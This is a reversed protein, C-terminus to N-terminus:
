AASSNDSAQGIPLHEHRRVPLGSQQLCHVLHDQRALERPSPDVDFIIPQPELRCKPDVDKYFASKQDFNFQVSQMSRMRFLQEGVQPQGILRYSEEDVESACRQFLAKAAEDIAM